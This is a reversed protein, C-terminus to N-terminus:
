PPGDHPLTARGGRGAGIGVGEGSPRPADISREGGYGVDECGKLSPSLAPFYM